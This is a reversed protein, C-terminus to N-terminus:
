CRRMVGIAASKKAGHGKQEAGHEHGAQQGKRNEGLGLAVTPLL